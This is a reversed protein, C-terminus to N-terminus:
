GARVHQSLDGVLDMHVVRDTFRWAGDVCAFRDEYRGAIVTQLPLTATAQLVTFYSHASATGAADDVTITLNTVAHKTRPTGDEHLIVVRRLVALLEDAGRRVPGRSGGFTGHAFLAAVGELDGADIREAYAHVLGAIADRSTM